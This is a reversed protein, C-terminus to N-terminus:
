VKVSSDVEQGVLVNGFNVSGPSVVLGGGADPDIAGSGCGSAVITLCFALAFLLAKALGRLRLAKAGSRIRYVSRKSSADKSFVAPVSVGLGLFLFIAYIDSVLM